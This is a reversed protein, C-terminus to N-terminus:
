PRTSSKRTVLLNLAPPNTKREADTRKQDAHKWQQTTISSFPRDNEPLPTNAPRKEIWILPALPLDLTSKPSGPRSKPHPALVRFVSNLWPHVGEKAQSRRPLGIFVSVSKSDTLSARIKSCSSVSPVSAHTKLALACLRRLRSHIETKLEGKDMKASAVSSLGQGRGWSLTKALASKQNSFPPKAVGTLSSRFVIM